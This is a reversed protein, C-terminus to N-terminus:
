FKIKQMDQNELDFWLLKKLLVSDLGALIKLAECSELSAVFPPTFPPNGTETEAGKDPVDESYWFPTDSPYFVSVQGFFGGIAGHVFPIDLERCAAFVDRRAKNSDLADIVVSCGRLLEAANGRNLYGEFPFAEVASNTERVREAAALAKSAGISSERSYLQRNLNNDDFVDGDAMVIEGVGARALIEIIWGGLGGCGIVAAKSSLLRAQGSLGFTGASREYRSPCIGNELALIETERVSFGCERAVERCYFFPVTLYVGTSSAKSRLLAIAKETLAIM